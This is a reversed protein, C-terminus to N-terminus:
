DNREMEAVAVADNTYCASNVNSKFATVTPKSSAETNVLEELFQKYDVQVAAGIHKFGPEIARITGEFHEALWKGHSPPCDEDDKAYWVVVKDPGKFGDEKLGFVDLKPVDLLIDKGAMYLMAEMGYHGKFMNASMIVNTFIAIEPDIKGVAGPFPETPKKDAMSKLMSQLMCNCCTASNTQSVLEKSGPLSPQGDKMKLQKSLHLPMFPARLGMKLIRKPGFHQAMAM